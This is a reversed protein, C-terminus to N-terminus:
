QFHFIEIKIWKGSVRRDVLTFARCRIPYFCTTIATKPADPSCSGRLRTTSTSATTSSWSSSTDALSNAISRSIWVISGQLWQANWSAPLREWRIWTITTSKDIRYTGSPWWSRVMSGGITGLTDCLRDFSGCM